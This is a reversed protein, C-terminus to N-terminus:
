ISAASRCDGAWGQSFWVLAATAPGSKRRVLLDTWLGGETRITRTLHCRVWFREEM